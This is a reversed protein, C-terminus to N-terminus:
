VKCQWATFSGDKLLLSQCNIYVPRAQANQSAAASANNAADQDGLLAAAGAAAASSAAAATASALQVEGLQPADYSLLDKLCLVMSLMGLHLLTAPEAQAQGLKLHPALAPLM